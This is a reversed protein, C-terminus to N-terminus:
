SVGGCVELNTQICMHPVPPKMAEKGEKLQKDIFKKYGEPDDAAMNDLMSWIQEATKTIDGAM